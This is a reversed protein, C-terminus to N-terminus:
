LMGVTKSRINYCMYANLLVKNVSVHIHQSGVDNSSLWPWAILM